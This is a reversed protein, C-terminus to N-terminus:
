IGLLCQQLGFLSSHSHVYLCSGKNVLNSGCLSAVTTEFFGVKAKQYVEKYLIQEEEILRDLLTMLLEHSDQQQYGRFKAYKARIADLVPSPDLNRGESSRMSIFFNRLKKRLALQASIPKGGEIRPVINKTLILEVLEPSANVCQMVSNFYCTNGQNKLGKIGPSKVLSRLFEAQQKWKEEETAASEKEAVPLPTTMFDSNDEIEGENTEAATSESVPDFDEKAGLASFIDNLFTELEKTPDEGEKKEEPKEKLAKVNEKLEVDCDHCFVERNKTNVRIPHKDDHEKSHLLCYIKYCHM